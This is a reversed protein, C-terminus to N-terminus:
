TTATQAKKTRKRKSTTRVPPTFTEDPELTVGHEELHEDVSTKMEDTLDVHHIKTQISDEFADELLKLRRDLEDLKNEMNIKAGMKSEKQKNEKIEILQAALYVTCDLLEEVAEETFDRGDSLVNEHGYKREGIGLRTNIMELIKNNM